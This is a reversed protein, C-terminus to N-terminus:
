VLGLETLKRRLARFADGRGVQALHGGPFWHMEPCGWHQWLARAQDPPTIQDGEGAILFLREKPLLVQRELPAHPAFVSAVLERTVGQKEAAARDVVASGHRWMLDAMDAAPIMPVCFALDAD